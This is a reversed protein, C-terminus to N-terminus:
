GELSPRKVGPLVARREVHDLGRQTLTAITVTGIEVLTVAGIEALARLQTILWDRSRNHGFSFLVESLVTSNCRGDAQAALERLLVLRADAELFRNFETQPM